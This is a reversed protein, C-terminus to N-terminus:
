MSHTQLCVIRIHRSRFIIIKVGWAGTRVDGVALTLQQGVLGCECREERNDLVHFHLLEELEEHVEMAEAAILMDHKKATAEGERLADTITVVPIKSDFDHQSLLGNSCLHRLPTFDDRGVM